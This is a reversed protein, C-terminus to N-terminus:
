AAPERSMRLYHDAHQYWNETQVADGFSVSDRALTIYREYNARADGAPAIRRGRQNRVQAAPQIRRPSKDITNTM